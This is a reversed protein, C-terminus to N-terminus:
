FECGNEFHVYRVIVLGARREACLCLFCGRVPVNSAFQEVFDFLEFGCWLADFTVGDIDQSAKQRMVRVRDTELPKELDASDACANVEVRKQRQGRTFKGNLRRPGPRLFDADVAGKEFPM